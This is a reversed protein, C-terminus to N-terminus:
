MDCPLPSVVDYLPLCVASWRYWCGMPIEFTGCVCVLLLETAKGHYLLHSHLKAISNATFLHSALHQQEDLLRVRPEVLPSNHRVFPYYIAM